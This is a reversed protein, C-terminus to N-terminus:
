GDRHVGHHNESGRVTRLVGLQRLRAGIPLRAHMGVVRGAELGPVFEGAEVGLFILMAQNAVVVQRSSTMVAVLEPMNNLLEQVFPASKAIGALRDTEKEPLRFSLSYGNPIHLANNNM